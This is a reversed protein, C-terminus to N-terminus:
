TEDANDSEVRLARLAPNLSLLLLLTIIIASTICWMCVAKIVFPELYTLYTSFITGFFAMGFLAIPAYSSVWGWKERGVWWAALIAIYGFAGLVGVPLFDWLRAYRSAQVANCDGVPGCAAQSLTVEIYSLYGAVGLGIVCLIPVIWDQWAPPSVVLSNKRLSFILRGIAYVLALSMGILVVIALTFGNDRKTVAPAPPTNALTPTPENSPSALTPPIFRSPLAPTEVGGASLYGEVLGPLEAAMQEGILVDNGIILLPLNVQERPIGYSALVQYLYEVDESTVIDITRYKFQSDYKELVPTLAAGTELQCSHCDLTTFLIAHVVAGSAAGGSTGVPIATGAPQPALGQPWDVGGQVLYQKILGPLEAPIQDSGILVREGIILFPVIAREKPIGYSAAVEYLHNVDEITVVEIFQIQLQSGYKDQLPPLVDELVHLCHPCGNMWFLVANVVPQPTASQAYILTPTFLATLLVLLCVAKHM